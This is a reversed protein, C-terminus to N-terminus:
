HDKEEVQTQCTQFYHQCFEIWQKQYHDKSIIPVDVIRTKNEVECLHVFDAIYPDSEELYVTVKKFNLNKAVKLRTHGDLAVVKEGLLTVPIKIDEEKEIWNLLRKYKEESVYLQSPQIRDIEEQWQYKKPSRYIVKGEELRIEEIFGSYFLFEEIVEELGMFSTSYLIAQSHNIIEFAYYARKGQESVTFCTSHNQLDTKFYVAGENSRIIEM